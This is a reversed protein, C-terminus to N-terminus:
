AARRVTWFDSALRPNTWYKYPITFYGAMGWAESWSNQVLFRQTKDDYGVTMVAHGGLVREFMRPMSVVGTNAVEPSEFSEYVTFGSIFPYGEALCARMQDLQQPVAHYSTIKHTGAVVRAEDSPPTDWDQDNYPMDGIPCAGHWILDRLAERVQAGSDERTTGEYVRAGWYTFAPSPEFDPLGLKRRVVWDCSTSSFGTCCGQTKQDRVPVMWPAKRPDVVPPLAVLIHNPARYLFQEDRIDPLSPRWGYRKVTLPPM